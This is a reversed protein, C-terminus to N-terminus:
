IGWLAVNQVSGPPINLSVQCQGGELKNAVFMDNEKKFGRYDGQTWPHIKNLSKAGVIRTLGHSAIMSWEGEHKQEFFKFGIAEAEKDVFINISQAKELGNNRIFDVSFAIMTKRVRVLEGYFRRHPKNFKIFM